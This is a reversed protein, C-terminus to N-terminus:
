IEALMLAVRELRAELSGQLELFPVKKRKLAELYWTYLYERQTPHERLPDEQWPIDIGCLLYLDYHNRHWQADIWPHIRGYKVASWIKMVLMGTDCFLFDPQYFALAQELATQGQAIALLDSEEYFGNTSDLYLRAYEPVWIGDYRHALAKALTTKGSSEPGTLM